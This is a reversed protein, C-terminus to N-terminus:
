DGKLKILQYHLESSNNRFLRYHGVTEGKITLSSFFGVPYGYNGLEERSVKRIGKGYLYKLIGEKDKPIKDELKRQLPEEEKEDDDDSLEGHELAEKIEETIHSSLEKLTGKLVRVEDIEGDEEALEYEKLKDDFMQVMVRLEEPLEAEKIDHNEILVEHPFKM